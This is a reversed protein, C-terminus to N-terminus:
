ARYIGQTNETFIGYWVIYANGMLKPSGLLILSVMRGTSYSYVVLAVVPSYSHTCALLVLEEVFALLHIEPTENLVIKNNDPLLL